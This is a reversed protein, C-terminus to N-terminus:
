WIILPNSVALWNGIKSLCLNMTPQGERLSTVCRMLSRDRTYAASMRTQTDKLIHRSEYDYGHTEGGIRSRWAKVAHPPPRTEGWLATFHGSSLECMTATLCAQDGTTVVARLRCSSLVERDSVTLTTCPHQTEHRSAVMLSLINWMLDCQMLRTTIAKQHSLDICTAHLQLVDGISPAILSLIVICIDAPYCQDVHLKQFIQAHPASSYCIM